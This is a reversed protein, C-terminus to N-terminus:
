RKREKETLVLQYRKHIPLRTGDDMSSLIELSRQNVEPKERLEADEKALRAQHLEELKQQKLM